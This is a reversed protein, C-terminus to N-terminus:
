IRRLSYTVTAGIPDIEMGIAKYTESVGLTFSSIDTPYVDIEYQAVEYKAVNESSVSVLPYDITVKALLPLALADYGIPTVIKFEQKPTSFEGRISDLISQQKTSGTIGDISIDKKRVGYQTISSVDSSLLTTNTWTLYNFTRNLGSRINQIDIINEPGLVSGPGFFTKLVAASSTRASVVPTTGNMYLVSNSGELLVDLSERCTKNTFVSLDDWIVDNSPVIQTNDITFIPVSVGTNAAALIGKILTSAKNDVPPSGVWDPSANRDLISEYGLVNFGIDQGNLQMVTSDDNLLGQYITVEVGQIENSLSIGAFYDWDSFDWTIDVLSDSRKYQFITDESGIDSYKGHDNRLSLSIASNTYVGIDYDSVDLARSITGLSRSDVDRTVEQRVGYSGNPLFPTIYVRIRAM